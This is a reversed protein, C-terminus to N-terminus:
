AKTVDFAVFNDAFIVTQPVIALASADADGSM